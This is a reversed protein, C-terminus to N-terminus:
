SLPQPSVDCPSEEGRRILPDLKLQTLLRDLAIDAKEKALDIAEKVMAEDDTDVVMVYGCDGCSHGPLNVSWLIIPPRHGNVTRRNVHCLTDNMGDLREYNPPWSGDEQWPTCFNRLYKQTCEIADKAEIM